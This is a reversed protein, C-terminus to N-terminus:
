DTAEDQRRHCATMKAAHKNYNQRDLDQKSYTVHELMSGVYQKFGNNKYCIRDGLDSDQVVEELCVFQMPTVAQLFRCSAAQITNHEESTHHWM